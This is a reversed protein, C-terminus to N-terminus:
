DGKGLVLIHSHSFSGYGMWYFYVEGVKERKLEDELELSKETKFIEKEDEFTVKTTKIKNKEEDENEEEENIVITDTDSIPTVGDRATQEEEAESTELSVGELDLRPVKPSIKDEEEEPSSLEVVKAVSSQSSGGASQQREFLFKFPMKPLKDENDEDEEEKKEEKIESPPSVSPRLHLRATSARSSQASRLEDSDEEAIADLRGFIPQNEDEEEDEEVEERADKFMFFPPPPHQPHQSPQGSELAQQRREMRVGITEIQIPPSEPTKDKEDLKVEKDEEGEDKKRGLGEMSIKPMTDTHLLNSDIKLSPKKEEEEREPSSERSSSSSSSSNKLNKEEQGERRKNKRKKTKKKIRENEGKKDDKKSSENM